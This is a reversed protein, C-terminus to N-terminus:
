KWGGEHKRLEERVTETQDVVDQLIGWIRPWPETRLWFAEWVDLCDDQEAQRRIALMLATYAQQITKYESVSFDVDEGQKLRMRCIRCVGDGNSFLSDELLGECVPCTRM